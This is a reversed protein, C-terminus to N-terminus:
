YVLRSTPVHVFSAQMCPRPTLSALNQTQVSVSSPFPFIRDRYQSKQLADPSGRPSMPRTNPRGRSNSSGSRCSDPGVRHSADPGPPPDAASPRTFIGPVPWTGRHVAYVIKEKGLSPPSLRRIRNTGPRPPSRRRRRAPPIAFTTLEQGLGTRLVFYLSRVPVPCPGAM